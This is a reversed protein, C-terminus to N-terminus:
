AADWEKQYKEIAAKAEDMSIDGPVAAYCAEAFQAPTGHKKALAKQGETLAMDMITRASKAGGRELCAMLDAHTPNNADNMARMLGLVREGLQLRQEKTLGRMQREVEHAERHVATVKAAEVLQDARQQWTGSKDPCLVAHAADVRELLWQFNLSMQSIRKAMLVPSDLLEDPM